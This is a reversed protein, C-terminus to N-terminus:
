GGPSRGDRSRLLCLVTGYRRGGDDELCTIKIQGPSQGKLVRPARGQALVPGRPGYGRRGTGEDVWVHVAYVPPGHVSHLTLHPTVLIRPGCWLSVHPLIITTREQPVELVGQDPDLDQVGDVLDDQSAVVPPVLDDVRDEQSDFIDVGPNGDGEIGDTTFPLSM